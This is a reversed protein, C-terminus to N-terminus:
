TGVCNHTVDGNSNAVDGADVRLHDILWACAVAALGTKRETLLQIALYPRLGDRADALFFNLADLARGVNTGSPQLDYRAALNRM